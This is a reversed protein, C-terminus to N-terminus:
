PIFEVVGVNSHDAGDALTLRTNSEADYLGVVLRLPGSVAAPIWLGHHDVIEEGSQWSATPRLENVPIADHQSVLRGDMAYLHVFVKYNQAVAESAAWTLSVTVRDDAQTRPTFVVATLRIRGDFVCAPQVRTM